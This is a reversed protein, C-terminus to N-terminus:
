PRPGSPIRMAPHHAEPAAEFSIRSLTALSDRHAHSPLPRACRYEVGPSPSSGDDGHACSRTRRCPESSRDTGVLRRNFIAVSAHLAVSLAPGAEPRRIAGQCLRCSSRRVPALFTAQTTKSSRSTAPRTRHLELDPPFARACPSIGSAQEPAEEKTPLAQRTSM